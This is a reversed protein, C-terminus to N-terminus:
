GNRGGRTQTTQGDHIPDPDGKMIGAAELEEAVLLVTIAIAAPPCVISALNALDGTLAMDDPLNSFGSTVAGLDQALQVGSLWNTIAKVQGVTIM